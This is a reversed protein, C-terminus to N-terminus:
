SRRKPWSGQRVLLLHKPNCCLRKGCRSGVAFRRRDYKGHLHSWIWVRVLRIGGAAKPGYAPFVYGRTERTPGNWIWCRGERYTLEDRILDLTLRPLKKTPRIRGGHRLIAQRVSLPTATISRPLSERIEKWTWGIMKAANAQAWKDLKSRYQHRWQHKAPPDPKNLARRVQRIRERSVGMQEALVIDQLTWDVDAYRQFKPETM